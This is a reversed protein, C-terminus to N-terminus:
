RDLSRAFMRLDDAYADPAEWAPFHGGHAQMTYRRVDYLREAWERPPVALDHPWLCLATPVTIRDGPQLPQRFHRHDYYARMSSGITETTWYIMLTDILM